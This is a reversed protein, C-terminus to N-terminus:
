KGADRQKQEWEIIKDINAFEFENFVSDQQADFTEPEITGKYWSKGEFYEAIRPTVFKRGRRAYIENKALELDSSSYRSIEEDTLYRSDSDAFFYDGSGSPKVEKQPKPATTPTPIPTPKKTPRPTPAATPEPTPTVTIMPVTEIEQVKELADLAQRNQKEKAAVSRKHNTFLIAAGGAMLFVAILTVLIIILISRRNNKKRM